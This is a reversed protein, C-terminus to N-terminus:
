NGVPRCLQPMYLYQALGNKSLNNDRCNNKRPPSPVLAGGGSIHSKRSRQREGRFAAHIDSADVGHDNQVYCRYRGEDSSQVDSIELGNEVIRFREHSTATIEELVTDGMESM